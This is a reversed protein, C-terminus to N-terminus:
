IIRINLSHLIPGYAACGIDSKPTYIVLSFTHETLCGLRCGGFLRIVANLETKNIYHWIVAITMELSKLLVTWNLGVLTWNMTIM